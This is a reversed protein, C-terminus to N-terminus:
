CGVCGTFAESVKSIEVKQLPDGNVTKFVLRVWGGATTRVDDVRV